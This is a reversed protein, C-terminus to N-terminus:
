SPTLGTPKLSEPGRRATRSPNRAKGQEKPLPVQSPSALYAVLDRLEENTMKDLLGDPMLSLSSQNRSEIESKPLPVNQGPARGGRGCFGALRGREM